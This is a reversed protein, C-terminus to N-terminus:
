IERRGTGQLYALIEEPIEPTSYAKGDLGFVLAYAFNDALCEEFAIVYSTNKGLVEWFDPLEEIEYLRNLTDIPVIGLKAEDLFLDGEREFPRNTYLFLACNKKEGDVTFAAYANNHEVDPNSIMREPREGRFVFDEGALKVGLIGYLASRFDEDHRTLCHFLEHALVYRFELIRESDATEAVFTSLFDKGLFIGNGRTYAAMGREEEMTTAAFVIEDPLPLFAGLECLRGNLWEMTDSVLVKEERSFEVVSAKIIPLLDKEFDANKKQARYDLDYHSFADYYKSCGLLLACGEEADAFRYLVGGQWARKEEAKLSADAGMARASFSIILVALILFFGILWSSNGILHM